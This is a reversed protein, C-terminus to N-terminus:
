RRILAADGPLADGSPVGANYHRAASRKGPRRIVEARCGGESDVRAGSRLGPLRLAVPCAIAPRYERTTMGPPAASARGVILKLGVGVTKILGQV